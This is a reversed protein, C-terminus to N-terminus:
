IPNKRHYSINHVITIIRNATFTPLNCNRALSSFKQFKRGIWSNIGLNKTVRLLPAAFYDRGYQHLMMIQSLQYNLSLFNWLYVLNNGIILFLLIWNWNIMNIIKWIKWSSSSYCKWIETTHWQVHKCNKKVACIKCYLSFLIIKLHTDVMRAEIM